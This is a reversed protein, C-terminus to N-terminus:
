GKVIIKSSQAEIIQRFKFHIPYPRPNKSSASAASSKLSLFMLAIMLSTAINSRPWSRCEWNKSGVGVMISVFISKKFFRIELATINLFCSEFDNSMSDRVKNGLEQYRELWQEWYDRTSLWNAARVGHRSFSWECHDMYPVLNYHRQHCVTSIAFVIIQHWSPKGTIM